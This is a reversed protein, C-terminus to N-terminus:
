TSLLVIIHICKLINGMEFLPMSQKTACILRVGFQVPFFIIDFATVKHDNHQITYCLSIFVDHVFRYCNVRTIIYIILNYRLIEPFGSYLYYLLFSRYLDNIPHFTASQPQHSREKYTYLSRTTDIVKLEL